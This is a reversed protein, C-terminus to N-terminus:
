FYHNLCNGNQAAVHLPTTDALIEKHNVNAGHEILIDTVNLHGFNTAFYLPTAGDLDAADVIAGHKILFKAVEM